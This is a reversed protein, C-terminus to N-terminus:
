GASWGTELRALRQADQPPTEESVLLTQMSENLGSLLEPRSALLRAVRLRVELPLSFGPVSRALRVLRQADDLAAQLGSASGQLAQLWARVVACWALRVLANDRRALSEAQDLHGLGDAGAGLVAAAQALGCRGEFQLDVEHRATSEALAASFNRGLAVEGRALRALTLNRGASLQKLVSQARQGAQEAEEWRQQWRLASCRRLAVLAELAPWGRGHVTQAARDVWRAVREPTNLQSLASAINLQSVVVRSWCGARASARLAAAYHEAAQLAHGQRFALTALADWGFSAALPDLHSPEVSWRLLDIDTPSWAQAGHLVRYFVAAFHHLVSAPGEAGSSPASAVFDVRPQAEGRDDGLQVGLLLASTALLPDLPRISAAPGARDLWAQAAGPHGRLRECEAAVVCAWRVLLPDASSPEDLLGADALLTLARASDDAKLRRAEALAQAPARAPM